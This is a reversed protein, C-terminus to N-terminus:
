VSSSTNIHEEYFPFDLAHHLAEFIPIFEEPHMKKCHTKLWETMHTIQRATTVIAVSPQASARLVWTLSEATDPFNGTQTFLEVLRTADARALVLSAHLSM